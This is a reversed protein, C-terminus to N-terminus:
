QYPWWVRMKNYFEKLEMVNMMYFRGDATAVLFKETAGPYLGMSRVQGGMEMITKDDFKGKLKEKLVPDVRMEYSSGDGKKKWFRDQAGFGSAQEMMPDDWIKKGLKINMDRPHDVSKLFGGGETEKFVGMPDIDSYFKNGRPDILYVLGDNAGTKRLSYGKALLLKVTSQEEQKLTELKEPLMVLGEYAGVAQSKFKVDMPKPRYGPQGEYKVAARKRGRYIRVKKESQCIQGLRWLVNRDWGAEYAAADVTIAKGALWKNLEPNKM